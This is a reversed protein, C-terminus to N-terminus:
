SSLSYLLNKEHIDKVYVNWAQSENFFVYRFFLNITRTFYDSFSKFVNDLNFKEYNYISIILGM